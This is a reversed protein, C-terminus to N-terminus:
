LHTYSVPTIAVSEKKKLIAVQRTKSQNTRLTPWETEAVRVTVQHMPLATLKDRRQHKIREAEHSSSANNRLCGTRPKEFCRAGQQNSVKASSTALLDNSETAPCEKVDHGGSGVTPRAAAPCLSLANERRRLATIRASVPALARTSCVRLVCPLAFCRM